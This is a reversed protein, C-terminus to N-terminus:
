HSMQVLRDHTLRRTWTSEVRWAFHFSLLNHYSVSYSRILESHISYLFSNRVIGNKYSEIKAMGVKRASTSITAKIKSVGDRLLHGDTTGHKINRPFETATIPKKIPHNPPNLLTQYTISSCTILPLSIWRELHTPTFKARCFWSICGEHTAPAIKKMYPSWTKTRQYQM